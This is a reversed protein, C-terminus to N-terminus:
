WVSDLDHMLGGYTLKHLWTSTQERKEICSWSNKCKTAVLGGHTTTIMTSPPLKRLHHHVNNKTTRIKVEKTERTTLSSKM